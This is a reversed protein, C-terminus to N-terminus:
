LHMTFLVIHLITTYIYQIYIYINTYIYLIHRLWKTHQLCSYIWKERALFNEISAYKFFIHTNKRLLGTFHWISNSIWEWVEDARYNSNPTQNAIHNYEWAPIFTWGYWYFPNRHNEKITNSRCITGLMEIEIFAMYNTAAADDVLRLTKGPGRNM